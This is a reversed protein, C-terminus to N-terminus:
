YRLKGLTQENNTADDARHRRFDEIVEKIASVTLIICLPVLTTFRGTPSVGPIQQIIRCSETVSHNRNSGRSKMETYDPQVETVDRPVM